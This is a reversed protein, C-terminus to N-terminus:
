SARRAQRRIRGRETPVMGAVIHFPCPDTQEGLVWDTCQDLVPCRACLMMRDRDVTRRQHWAPSKVCSLEMDLGKCAAHETWWGRINSRPRM